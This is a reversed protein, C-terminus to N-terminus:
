HPEAVAMPPATARGRVVSEVLYLFVPLTLSLVISVFAVNAMGVLKGDPLESLIQASIFAGSASAAHQVASQISMFRAREAPGPVKTTLANYAVNRFSM